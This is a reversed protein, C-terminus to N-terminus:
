VAPRRRRRLFSFGLFSSGALAMLVLSSPEPVVTFEVTSSGSSGETQFSYTVPIGAGGPLAPISYDDETITFQGLLEESSSSNTIPASGTFFSTVSTSEFSGYDVGGVILEKKEPLGFIPFWSVGSPTNTITIDTLGDIGILHDLTFSSPLAPPLLSGPALTSGPDLYASFTYSAQPDGIGKYGGGAVTIGAEATGAVILMMGCCVMIPTLRNVGKRLRM